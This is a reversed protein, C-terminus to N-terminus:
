TVEATNILRKPALRGTPEVLAIGLLRHEDYVRVLDDDIVSTRDELLVGQGQCFRVSQDLDLMVRPLHDVLVDMPLLCAMRESDDLGALHELTVMGSADFPGTRLRRLADLHAGCGLAEGIDMALTRVYTGKSCTVDLSFGTPGINFPKSHHVSVPRPARKIERGERALEYLPRGQYKLASFMPPVQEIDGTFRAVAADISASELMPVPREQIVQGEADGTDTCQGLRLSAIYRKDAELLYSAFKTAEGLLVPLLGTAMPDLTGTHGAKQAEFLGRAKQLARNSSMGSPKDLLLVGDIPRGKRRRAM